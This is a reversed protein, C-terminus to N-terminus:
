CVSIVLVIVADEQKNGKTSDCFQDNFLRDKLECNTLRDKMCDCM